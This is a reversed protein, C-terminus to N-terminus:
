QIFEVFIKYMEKCDISDCKNNLHVLTNHTIYPTKWLQRAIKRWSVCLNEINSHNNYRWLTIGYINM